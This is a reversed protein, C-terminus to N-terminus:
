PSNAFKDAVLKNDAVIKIIKGDDNPRSFGDDPQMKHYDPKQGALCAFVRNFLNVPTYREDGLYSCEDPWKVTFLIHNSLQFQQERTFDGVDIRGHDAQIIIIANPDNETIHLVTKKLSENMCQIQKQYTKVSNFNVPGQSFCIHEDVHTHKPQVYVFKARQTPQLNKVLLYLQEDTNQAIYPSIRLYAVWVFFLEIDALNIGYFNVPNDYMKKIIPNQSLPTGNRLYIDYGNDIFTKITKNKGGMILGDMYRDHYSRTAIKSDPITVFKQSFVTAISYISTQFNSYAPEQISFGNNLLFTRIATDDIGYIDRMTQLSTYADPVIYYVSNQKKFKHEVNINKYDTELRIDDQHNNYIKTGLQLGNSLIFISLFFTAYKFKKDYKYAIFTIVMSVFVLGLATMMLVHPLTTLQVDQPINFTTRVMNGIAGSRTNTIMFTTFVVIIISFFAIYFSRFEWLRLWCYQLVALFMVFFIFHWHIGVHINAVLFTSTPVLATLMSIPLLNNM